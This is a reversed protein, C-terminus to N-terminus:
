RGGLAARLSTSQAHGPNLSDTMGASAPIWVDFGGPISRGSVLFPGDPGRVKEGIIVVM